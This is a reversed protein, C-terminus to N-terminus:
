GNTWAPTLTEGHNRFQGFWYGCTLQCSVNGPAAQGDGGPGIVLTGATRVTAPLEAEISAVVPVTLTTQTAAGDSHAGIV